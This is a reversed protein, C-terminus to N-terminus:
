AMPCLILIGYFPRIKGPKKAVLCKESPTAERGMRPGMTVWTQTALQVNLVVTRISRNNSTMDMQEDMRGDTQVYKRGCFTKKQNRDLKTYPYVEDPYTCATIVKVQDLTLTVPSRFNRFNCMELDIEEAM